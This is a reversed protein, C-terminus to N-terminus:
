HNLPAAKASSLFCDMRHSNSKTVVVEAVNFPLQASRMREASAGRRPVCNM